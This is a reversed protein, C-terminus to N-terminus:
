STAECQYAHDCQTITSVQDPVNQTGHRAVHPCEQCLHSGTAAEAAAKGPLTTVHMCHSHALTAPQSPRYCSPIHRPVATPSPPCRGCPISIALKTINARLGVACGAHLLPLVQQPGHARLKHGATAVTATTGHHASCQVAAHLAYVSQKARGLALWDCMERTHGIGASNSCQLKVQAVLM